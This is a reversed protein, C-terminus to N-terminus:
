MGGATRQEFAIHDAELEFAPESFDHIGPVIV